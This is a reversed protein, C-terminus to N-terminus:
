AVRAVLDCVKNTTLLRLLNCQALLVARTNATLLGAQSTTLTEPHSGPATVHAM